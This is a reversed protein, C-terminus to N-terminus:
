WCTNWGGNNYGVKEDLKKKELQPMNKSM